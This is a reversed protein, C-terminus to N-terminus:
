KCLKDILEKKLEICENRFEEKFKGTLDESYEEFYFDVGEEIDKESPRLLVLDDFDRLIGRERRSHYAAIKMKILDITSLVYLDINSYRNIKTMRTEYNDPVTLSSAGLDFWKPNDTLDGIRMIEEIVDDENISNIPDIDETLIGVRIGRLELAYGGVIHLVLTRNNRSLWDNLKKLMEELM